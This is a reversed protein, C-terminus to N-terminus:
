WLGVGNVEFAYLLESVLARERHLDAVIEFQNVRNVKGKQEKV